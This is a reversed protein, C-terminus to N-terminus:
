HVSTYAGIKNKKGPKGLLNEEKNLYIPINKLDSLHNTYHM